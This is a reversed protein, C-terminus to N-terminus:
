AVQVPRRPECVRAVDWAQYVRMCTGLLFVLGALSCVLSQVCAPSARSAKWVVVEAVMVPLKRLFARCSTQAVRSLHACLVRGNGEALTVRMEQVVSEIFAAKFVGGGDAAVDAVRCLLAYVPAGLRGFSKVSVPVLKYGGRLGRCAYQARKSADRSCAVAGTTTAAVAAV